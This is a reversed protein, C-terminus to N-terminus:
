IGQKDKDDSVQSAEKFDKVGKGLGKMLEPIKKGGFLLLVIILVIIIEQAGMFALLFQHIM